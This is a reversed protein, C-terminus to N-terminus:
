DAATGYEGHVLLRGDDDLVEVIGDAFRVDVQQGVFVRRAFSLTLRQVPVDLAGTLACLVHNATCLGQIFPRPHGFLRAAMRTTHVVNLDGSVRGYRMGMDDPVDVRVVEASAPDLVPARRTVDALGAVEGDGFRHSSRLAAMAEPDISLIVFVDRSLQVLTDDPAHVRSEIVLAVRDDGLELIDQLAVELTHDVDVEIRRGGPHLAMESRLHLLHKFNVGVDEVVRMLLLTGSTSYYTFPTTQQHPGADFLDFWQQRDEPGVRITTRYTPFERDVLLRHRKAINRVATAYYRRQYAGLRSLDQAPVDVRAPGDAALREDAEGFAQRLRDALDRALALGFRGDRDLLDVVAPEDLLLLRSARTAVITALRREGLLTALEGFTDGPGVDGVHVHDGDVTVTVDGGGELVTWIGRDADDERVITTGPEVIRIQGVDAVMALLDDDLQGFPRTGRLAQVVDDRDTMTARM